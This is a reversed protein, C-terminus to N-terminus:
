SKVWWEVSLQEADLGMEEDFAGTRAIVTADHALATASAALAAEVADALSSAAAPTEAWCQVSITCAESMLTNNLSLDRQHDVVFTILPYANGQPVANQAIRTSVLSTVGSAAALVARFDTEVTV